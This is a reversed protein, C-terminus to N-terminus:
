KKGKQSAHWASSGLLEDTTCRYWDAIKILSELPIDRKGREYMNYANRTVGLKDAVQKQTYGHAMRVERLRYGNAM